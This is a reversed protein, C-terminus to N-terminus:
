MLEKLSKIQRTKGQKWERRAARSAELADALELRRRAEKTLESPEVLILQKNAYRNALMKKPITITINEM